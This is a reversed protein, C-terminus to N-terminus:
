RARGIAENITQLAEDPRPIHLWTLESSNGKATDFAISGVGLARELVIACPVARRIDKLLCASVDAGDAGRVRMIRLNTLVYLRGAWQFCAVLLRALAAAACIWFVASPATPTQIRFMVVALYVLLSVAAAVALVQWSALVIFWASPKIALIVIEGDQLLRAPVATAPLAAAPSAPQAAPSM